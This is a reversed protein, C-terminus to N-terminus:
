TPRSPAPARRAPVEPPGPPRASSATPVSRAGPHPPGAGARAERQPATRGGSGGLPRARHRTRRSSPVRRTPPARGDGGTRRVTARRSGDVRRGRGRRPPQTDEIQGIGSDPFPDAHCLGLKDVVVQLDALVDCIRGPRRAEVADESTLPARRRPWAQRRGPRWQDLRPLASASGALEGSTTAIAAAPTVDAACRPTDVADPVQILFTRARATSAFPADCATVPRCPRV